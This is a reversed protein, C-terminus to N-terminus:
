RGGKRGIAVLHSYCEVVSQKARDRAARDKSDLAARIDPFRHWGWRELEGRWEVEGVAERVKEFAQAM